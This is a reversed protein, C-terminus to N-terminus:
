KVSLVRVGVGDALTKSSQVVVESGEALGETVEMYANKKRGQTVATKVVSGNSVVYVYDGTEDSQICKAPIYVSGTDENEAARIDAALGTYSVAEAADAADTEVAIKVKYMGTKADCVASIESITGNCAKGVSQLGINMPMGTKLQDIDTDAVQIEIKEGSDDIVTAGVIQPSVMQGVEVNIDTVLGTIPATVACDDYHKQAIDLTAKASDMQAKTMDYNGDQGNRAAQLKSAASDMRSKANEFDVQSIVNAAYLEQMRKFNNAADTYEIEAPAVGTNQESAKKASAFAAAAADYGAQAQALALGADTNDIQFLVDGANVHQGEAATIETVKGSGAPLVDITSLAEVTGQWVMSSLDRGSRAAATTVEIQNGGGSCGALLGAALAFGLGCIMIKKM